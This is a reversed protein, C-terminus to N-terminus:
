QKEHNRTQSQLVAEAKLVAAKFQNGRDEYNRFLDFSACAPSLLVTDGMESIRLAMDILDDVSQTEEILKLMPGFHTKLKDNEKGLCILAKVKSRVAEDLETYDNGKDVGGAIWVIPKEFASFAYKVSDVNTAKSDNIFRVGSIETVFECRHPANVFSKAGERIKDADGGALSVASIAMMANMLNHDGSIPLSSVPVSFSPATHNFVLSGKAVFVLNSAKANLAVPVLSCAFHRNRVEASVVPDSASIILSQEPGLNQAIRFKSAIYNEFNYNYRDLHDPTINTLIAVDSRFSHMGDLQFSSIELVYWDFADTIVQRALSQGINGALGVSFRCAQMLHYTLLTTTTKGNSGTIGIFRAKTYRSAFELEDIVPIGAALAKAVMEAKEPIGPSKVMEKASLVKSETHQNEEFEIGAKELDKKYVPLISGKDSVFVSLGKAKALLAAGTGSEGAGLIVLDLSM